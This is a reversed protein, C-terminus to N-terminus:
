GTDKTIPAFFSSCKRASGNGREHSSTSAKAVHDVAVREAENTEIKYNAKIFLLRTEGGVIDMASEYVSVPFEKSNRELSPDLQLFLSSENIELFQEQIKLDAETPATGLAYWGMLDLHPFVQKM